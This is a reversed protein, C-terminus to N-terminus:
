LNQARRRSFDSYVPANLKERGAERHDLCGNRSDHLAIEQLLNPTARISISTTPRNRNPMSALRMVFPTPSRRPKRKRPGNEIERPSRIQSFSDARTGYEHALIAFFEEEPTQGPAIEIAYRRQVHRLAGGPIETEGRHQFGLNKLLSREQPTRRYEGPDGKVTHLVRAATQRGDAFHRIRERM